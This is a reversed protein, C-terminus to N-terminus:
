SPGLPPRVFVVADPTGQVSGGGGVAAKLVGGNLDYESVGGPHLVDVRLSNPFAVGLGTAGTAIPFQSSEAPAGDSALALTLLEGASSAVYLNFGDGAFNDNLLMAVPEATVPYPSGPSSSLAGTSSNVAFGAVTSSAPELVYLYTGFPNMALATASTGLPSSATAPSLAGTQTSYPYVSLTSTGSATSLVYLFRDTPYWAVAVPRGLTAASGGAATAPVGSDLSISYARVTDDGACAVALGVTGQSYALAVPSSCSAYPSGPLPRLAGTSADASFGYVANASPGAAFIAFASPAAGIIEPGALGGRRFPRRAPALPLPQFGVV